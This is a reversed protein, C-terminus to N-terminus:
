DMNLQVIEGVNNSYFVKQVGYALIAAQCVKCPMANRLTGSKTKRTVHLSHVKNDKCRLLAAVEAHLYIKQPMGVKNAFYSMIPHSKTYSNEAISLQRGHKDYCVATLCHKTNM